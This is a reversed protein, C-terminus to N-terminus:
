NKKASPPTTKIIRVIAHIRDVADSVQEDDIDEDLEYDSDTRYGRLVNLQNYLNRSAAACDEKTKADPHFLRDLLESHVGGDKSMDTKRGFYPLGAHWTRCAHYSAYYARSLAARRGPENIQKTQCLKTAFTCLDDPSTAM